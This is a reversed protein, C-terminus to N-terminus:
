FFVAQQSIVSLRPFLYGLPSAKSLSSSGREATFFCQVLRRHKRIPKGVSPIEAVATIAASRHIDVRGILLESCYASHFVHQVHFKLHLNARPTIIRRTFPHHLRGMVRASRTETLIAIKTPIIRRRFLSSPIM